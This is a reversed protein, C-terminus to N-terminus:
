QKDEKIKYVVDQMSHADTIICKVTTQGNIIVEEETTQILTSSPDVDVPEGKKNVYKSM